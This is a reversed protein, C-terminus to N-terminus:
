GILRRLEKEPVGYTGGASREIGKRTRVLLAGRSSSILGKRELAHLAETVGARRVGLMLSLFEHTLPLSSGDVRDDAMLIWRALRQDLKACANVVATHTTQIMFAHVFKLLSARLSPSERPAMRRVSLKCRSSHRLTQQSQYWSCRLQGKWIWLWGLLTVHGVAHQMVQDCGNKDRDCRDDGGTQQVSYPVRKSPRATATGQECRAGAPRSPVGRDNTLLM